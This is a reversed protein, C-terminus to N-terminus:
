AWRVCRRGIEGDGMMEIKGLREIGEERFYLDKSM